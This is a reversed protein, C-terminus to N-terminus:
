AFRPLLDMVVALIKDRFTTFQPFYLGAFKTYKQILHLFKCWKRSLTTYIEARLVFTYLIQSINYFASFMARCIECIQLKVLKLISKRATTISKNKRDLDFNLRNSSDDMLLSVRFKISKPITNTTHNESSIYYIKINFFRMKM